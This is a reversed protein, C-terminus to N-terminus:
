IKIGEKFPFIKDYKRIPHQQYVFDSDIDSYKNQLQDEKQFKKNNRVTKWNICKKLIMKNFKAAHYKM